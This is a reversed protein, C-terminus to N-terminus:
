SHENRRGDLGADALRRKLPEQFGDPWERSPTFDGEVKSAVLALCRNLASEWLKREEKNGPVTMWPWQLSSLLQLGRRKVKPSADIGALHKDFRTQPTYRSSGVYAGYFGNHSTYGDLLVVYLHGQYQGSPPPQLVGLAERADRLWPIPPVGFAEMMKTARGDKGRRKLELFAASAIELDRNNLDLTCEILDLLDAGSSSFLNKGDIEQPNTPKGIRSRKGPMTSAYCAVWITAVPNESFTFIPM